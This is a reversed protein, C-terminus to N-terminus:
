SLSTIGDELVRAVQAVEERSIKTFFPLALTRQSIGEAIPFDGEKYGFERKYLPQLHISPFYNNCGINSKRLYDMLQDRQMSSYRDNLHIVYVFWSIDVGSQGKPATIHNSLRSLEEAYWGAVESRKAIFEPLRSLQSTGLACNIDSIRYNYGLHHHELFESSPDRGQNRTARASAAIDDRDTVLIGGEGTTMQKNPYFAFTGCDGFTGAKKSGRASGLAECSDEILALNHKKAIAELADWDCLYGFIDVAVIAKTNETIAEEIKSPDICLTDPLIDVFKVTAKEFLACNASAIFSFPTTIVEDGEGIGLARVCLHLAATGSSVAVAHKTGCFDAFHQEFEPLKPGLSLRPTRLVNVVSQIDEDSIDPSSLPIQQLDM